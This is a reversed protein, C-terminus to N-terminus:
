LIVAEVNICDLCQQFKYSFWNQELIVHYLTFFNSM